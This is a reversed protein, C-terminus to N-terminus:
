PSGGKEVGEGVALRCVVGARDMRSCQTHEHSPSGYNGIWHGDNNTYEINVGLFFTRPSRVVRHHCGCLRENM